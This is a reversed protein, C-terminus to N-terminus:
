SGSAEALRAALGPSPVGVDWWGIRDISAHLDRLEDLMQRGLLDMRAVQEIRDSADRSRVPGLIAPFLQVAHALCIVAVDRPGPIEDQFLILECRKIRM